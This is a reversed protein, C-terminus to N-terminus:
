FKCCDIKYSKYLIFLKRKVKRCKIQRTTTITQHDLSYFNFDLTFSTESDEEEQEEIFEEFSNSEESDVWHHISNEKTEAAASETSILGGTLVLVSASVKFSLLAFLLPLIISLRKLV